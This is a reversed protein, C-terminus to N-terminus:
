ARRGGKRSMSDLRSNAAESVAMISGTLAALLFAAAMAMGYNDVGPRGLLRAVLVPLTPAGPAALFSTAGFEGLSIAFAFGFALPLARAVFPGDVTALVRWPSAGLTAAAERQHPDIGRLTPVVARVVLPVAIVAQAVPVLLGVGRLDLPPSQLTLFFGFGVTVASVGLPAMVLADLWRGRRGIRALLVALPVGVALAILAAVVGIRASNTLAELGTAGGSVGMGSTALARFNHLTVVGDRMFARQTLAALPAVLLALVTVACVLLAPVDSRTVRALSASRLRLAKESRATFHRQIGLALAVIALQLISLGAAAPLDMYTVTQVWIETELTGYAPRGLTQVIGYATSCFLFVLSGAAAIAPGLAPLTVTVFARAPTAGLTRAAEAQRPDLSAWVTGVTRVVVSYNFFIMAAVVASITQDLGLPEYLGDPGLLARFAVGVVVSPLVFPIAVIARVLRRGPFDLRYLAYAGPIGLILSGATGAAAMSLTQALIRWTRAKTLVGLLGAAGDSLGRALMAAVPWAFFLLLFAGSALAVLWGAARLTRSYSTM